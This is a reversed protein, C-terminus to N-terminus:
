KSTKREETKPATKTSAKKQRTVEVAENTQTKEKQTTKSKATSRCSPLSRRADIRSTRRSKVAHRVPRRQSVSSQRLRQHARVAPRRVGRSLHLAARPSGPLGAPLRRRQPVTPRRLRRETAGRLGLQRLRCSLPVQVSRQRHGPLTRRSPVASQPLRRNSIRVPTGRFRFPVSVSRTGELRSLM